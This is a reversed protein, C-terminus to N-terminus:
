GVAQWLRASKEDIINRFRAPLFSYRSLHAKEILFFARSAAYDALAPRGPINWPKEERLSGPLGGLALFHLFNFPVISVGSRKFM